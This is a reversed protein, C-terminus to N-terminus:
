RALLSSGLLLPCLPPMLLGLRGRLLWWILLCPLSSRRRPVWLRILRSLFTGLHFTAVWLLGVFCLAWLRLRPLSLGRNWRKCLFSKSFCLPSTVSSRVHQCTACQSFFQFGSAMIQSCISTWYYSVLTQHTGSSYLLYYSSPKNENHCKKIKKEQPTKSCIPSRKAKRPFWVLEWKM